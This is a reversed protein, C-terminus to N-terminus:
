ISARAWPRSTTGCKCGRARAGRLVRVRATLAQWREGRACGQEATSGGPARVEEEEEEANEERYRALVSAASLACVAGGMGEASNRRFSNSGVLELAAATRVLAGGGNLAENEVLENGGQVANSAVDTGSVDCRTDAGAPIRSRADAQHQEGGGLPCRAASTVDAGSIIVWHGPRIFPISGGDQAAANEKLLCSSLTLEPVRACLTLAWTASAARTCSLRPVRALQSQQQGERWRLVGCLSTGDHRESGPMAYQARPLCM